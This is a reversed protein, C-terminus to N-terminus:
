GDFQSVIETAEPVAHVRNRVFSQLLLGIRKYGVGRRARRQMSDKSLPRPSM